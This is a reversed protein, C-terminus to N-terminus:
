LARMMNGSFERILEEDDDDELHDANVWMSVSITDAFQVSVDVGPATLRLSLDVTSEVLMAEAAALMAHMKPYLHESRIRGDDEVIRIRYNM